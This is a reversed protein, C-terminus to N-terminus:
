LAAYLGSKVQGFIHPGNIEGVRHVGFVAHPGSHLQLDGMLRLVIVQRRYFNGVVHAVQLRQGQGLLPQQLM